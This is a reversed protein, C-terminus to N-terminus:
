EEELPVDRWEYGGAGDHFEQQLIRVGEQLNSTGIVDRLPVYKTVFRLRGTIMARDVGGMM